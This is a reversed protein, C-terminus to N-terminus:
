AVLCDGTRGVVACSAHRRMIPYAFDQAIVVLESLRTPSETGTATTVISSKRYGGKLAVQLQIFRPSRGFNRSVVRRGFPWSYEYSQVQVGKMGVRYFSKQAVIPMAYVRLM